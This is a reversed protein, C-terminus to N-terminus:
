QMVNSIWLASCCASCLYEMQVRLRSLNLSLSELGIFFRVTPPTNHLNVIGEM